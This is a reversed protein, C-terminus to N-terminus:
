TISRELIDKISRVENDIIKASQREEETMDKEEEIEKTGELYFNVLDMLISIQFENLNIEPM